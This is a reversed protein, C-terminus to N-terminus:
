SELDQINGNHHMSDEVFEISDRLSLGLGNQVVKVTRVKSKIGASAAFVYLYRIFSEEAISDFPINIPNEATYVTFCKNLRMM